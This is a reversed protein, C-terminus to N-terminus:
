FENLDLCTSKKKAFSPGSVWIKFHCPCARSLATVEIKAPDGDCRYRPYVTKPKDVSVGM